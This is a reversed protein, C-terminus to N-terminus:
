DTMVIKEYLWVTIVYYILYIVMFAVFPILIGNYPDILLVKFLQLGFLVHVVGLVAPLGFLVALESRISKKLLSPRVGMRNLMHYRGKDYDAGALIKFMLTSALMALFALGLFYGMFALGGFLGLYLQYMTYKSSLRGSNSFLENEYNQIKKAVTLNAEFDKLRYTTLEQTAGSMQNFESQTVFKMQHNATDNKVNTLRIVEYSYSEPKESLTLPTIKEYKNIAMGKSDRKPYLMPSKDFESGIFYVTNDEVKYEYTASRSTIEPIQNKFNMGVTIAGLALAFLISVVSLIMTYSHVRFSLQSLTFNRLGKNAFKVNRKVLNIVVIVVANFLLYSGIVITVLAISISLLQLTEIAAMAWYGVELSILGVITQLLQVGWKAKNRTPTQNSHLLELIPTQRMKSANVLAALFFIVIFFILTDIIAPFYFASFNGASVGIMKILANGVGATLGVGVVAGIVTAVVGIILTEVFILQSIKSSKAGLMMFTAYDRKRMSLLFTNAYSVYVFTIVMLLIAGFMFVIKANAGAANNTIFSKNTALAMFMYFIASSIILGSFLVIYDRLRNKIGALALKNLM